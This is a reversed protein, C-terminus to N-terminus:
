ARVSALGPGAGPLLVSGTHSAKGAMVLASASAEPGERVTKRPMIVRNIRRVLAATERVFSDSCCTGTPGGDWWPDRVFEKNNNSSFGESHSRGDIM